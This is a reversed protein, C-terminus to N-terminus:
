QKIYFILIFIFDIGGFSGGIDLADNDERVSPLERLTM